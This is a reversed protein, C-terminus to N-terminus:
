GCWFPPSPLPCPTCDGGSGEEGGVGCEDVGVRVQTVNPVQNYWSLDDRSATRYVQAPSSATFGADGLRRGRGRGERAGEGGTEVYSSAYHTFDPDCM